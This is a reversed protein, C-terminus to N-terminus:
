DGMKTAIKGLVGRLGAAGLIAAVAILLQQVPEVMEHLGFLPLVVEALVALAAFIGSWVTKSKVMPKDTMRVAEKIQGECKKWARWLKWGQWLNM